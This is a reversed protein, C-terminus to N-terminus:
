QTPRKIALWAIIHAREQDSLIVNGMKTMPNDFKTDTLYADLWREYRKAHDKEALVADIVAQAKAYAAPDKQKLDRVRNEYDRVVLNATSLAKDMPPAIMGGRGEVYHCFTCRSKALTLGRVPDGPEITDASCSPGPLIALALLLAPAILLLAPHRMFGGM